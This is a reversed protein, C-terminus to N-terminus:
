KPYFIDDYESRETHFLEKRNLIQQKVQDFKKKRFIVEQRKQNVYTSEEEKSLEKTHVYVYWVYGSFVTVSLALFVLLFPFYRLWKEKIIKALHARNSLPKNFTDRGRIGFM